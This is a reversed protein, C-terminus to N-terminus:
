LRRREAVQDARWNEQGARSLHEDVFVVRGDAIPLRHSWGLVRRLTGTARPLPLIRLVRHRVPARRAVAVRRCMHLQGAASPGPAIAIMEPAADLAVVRAARDVLRETWVGTGCALELPDGGAPIRDVVPWDAAAHGGLFVRRPRVRGPLTTASSSPPWIKM